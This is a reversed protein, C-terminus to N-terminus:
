NFNSTYFEEPVTIAQGKISLEETGPAFEIEKPELQDYLCSFVLPSDSGYSSEITYFRGAPIKVCQSVEPDLRFSEISSISEVDEEYNDPTGLILYGTGKHVQITQANLGNLTYALKSRYGPMVVSILRVAKLAQRQYYAIQAVYYDKGYSDTMHTVVQPELNFQPVVPQLHSSSELDSTIDVGFESALRCAQDVQAISPTM